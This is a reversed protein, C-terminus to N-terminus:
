QSSTHDHVIRWGEPMDRVVLTFLGQPEKGDKMKLHWHGRVFAAKPGLMEVRLDSFDLKGMERGEGQYRKKYRELTPEWGSTVTGGSFFTLEPSKWYGGMYGQLDGENWAAVQDDLVKRIAKEAADNADAASAKTLTACFSVVVVAAVMWTLSLKKMAVM